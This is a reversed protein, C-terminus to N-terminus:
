TRDGECEITMRTQALDMAKGCESCAALLELPADCATHTLLLPPGREDAYWADGWKLLGLLIPYIDRGKETLRYEFRDAHDSYPKRRVIGQEVLMEIRGSLINTAMGADRRIEDFRHFGTFLARVVLTAWRDGFIRIVPDALMASRRGGELAVSVSRRRRYNPTVQALGPGERWSVARPDIEAGCALCDPVPECAKGCASHHLVVTFGRDASSWRHQWRLMMLAVPFLQRGKETLRYGSRQSGTKATRALCDEAVLAKLREAVVSRPLGTNDVFGAFSKTGLFCQELILLVPVDGVTELARWISCARITGHM